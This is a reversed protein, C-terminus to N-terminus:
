IFLSDMPLHCCNKIRNNMIWSSFPNSTMLGKQYCSYCNQHLEFNFYNEKCDYCLLLSHLDMKSACVKCFTVIEDMSLYKLHEDIGILLAQKGLEECNNEYISQSIYNRKQKEKYNLLISKINVLDVRKCFQKSYEIETPTDFETSCHDCKFRIQFTKRERFSVRYCKPCALRKITDRKKFLEIEENTVIVPKAKEEKAWESNEILDFLLDLRIESFKRPHSLHQAVLVNKTDGCQECHNKLSKDRQEKWEPTKWPKPLAKILEFAESYSLKNSELDERIKLIKTNM